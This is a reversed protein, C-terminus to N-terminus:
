FLAACLRKLDEPTSLRHDGGEIIELTAQPLKKQILKAIDLPVDQDKTGHLLHVPCTIPIEKDLLLHSRAKEILTRTIPYPDEGYCSPAYFVGNQMLEDKQEHTLAEWILRETFDPAAAVGVLKKIRDPRAITALMALWAGMSSGVLIVDGGTLKDLVSLTDSLWHGITGERFEGSSQGHGFYDFRVFGHGTKECYDALAAAKTGTMDSKFGSCFMVTPAAGDQKLYAIETAPTTLFSPQM